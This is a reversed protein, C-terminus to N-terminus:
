RVASDAAESGAADSGTAAGSVAAGSAAAESGAALAAGALFAATLFAFFYTDYFELFDSEDISRIFTSKSCSSFLPRRFIYKLRGKNKIYLVM